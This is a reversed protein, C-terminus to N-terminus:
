TEPLKTATPVVSDKILMHSISVMLQKFGTAVNVELPFTNHKIYIQLYQWKYLALSKTNM